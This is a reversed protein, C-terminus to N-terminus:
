GPQHGDPCVLSSARGSVERELVVPHHAIQRNKPLPRGAGEIAEGQDVAVM